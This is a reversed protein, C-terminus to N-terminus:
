RLVSRYMFIYEQTLFAPEFRELQKDANSCLQVQLDTDEILTKMQEYLQLYNSNEFLLAADGVCEALGGNKSVILPKGAAMLELAVGGMPEEWESPIVAIRSTSLANVLDKGTKKGAFLVNNLLGLEQALGEYQIRRDGDGILLLKKNEHGIDKILLAFARLLTEVGKESVLRGLFVFDYLNSKTMKKVDKFATIPFPNYIVMQKPLVQRRSVWETIAINKSVFKSAIIRIILKMFNLSASILGKRKIHFKYSAWPTLPAKEGDVWGLGDICTVQYGGHTWIFPKNLLIAVFFFALSAGNSHIIDHKRVLTIKELLSPRRIVSYIFNDPLESPTNTVVTCRIGHKILNEALTASVIEIGGVSPLFLHSYILVNM